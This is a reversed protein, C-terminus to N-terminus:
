GLLSQELANLVEETNEPYIFASFSMNNMMDVYYDQNPRHTAKSDVKAELTAWRDKYFVAIDPIGQIYTPDLLTVISEPLRRAIEDKLDKKFAGENTYKRKM